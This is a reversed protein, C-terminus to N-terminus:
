RDQNKTTTNSGNAFGYILNHTKIREIISNITHMYNLQPELNILIYIIYM